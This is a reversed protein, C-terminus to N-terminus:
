KTNPNQKKNPHEPFVKEKIAKILQSEVDTGEIIENLKCLIETGVIKITNGRWIGARGANLTFSIHLERFTLPCVIIDEATESNMEEETIEEFTEKFWKADFPPLIGNGETEEPIHKYVGHENPKDWKRKVIVDLKESSVDILSQMDVDDGYYKRYADVLLLFCDAFEIQPDEGKKMCDLVEGIEEALKLMPATVPNERGFKEDSVKAAKYKLDNLNM